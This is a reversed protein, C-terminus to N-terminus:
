PREVVRVRIPESRAIGPDQFRGAGFDMVFPVELIITYLGPHTMDRVLNAVVEFQFSESHDLYRGDKGSGGVAAGTLKLHSTTLPMENGRIDTSIVNIYRYRYVDKGLLIRNGSPDVNRIEVSLVIPDLQEYRDKAGEVRVILPPPVPDGHAGGGGTQPDVEAQGPSLSTAAFIPIAAIGLIRFARHRM